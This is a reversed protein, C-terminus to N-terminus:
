STVPQVLTGITAGSTVYHADYDPADAADSNNCDVDVSQKTLMSAMAVTSMSTTMTCMAMVKVGIAGLARMAWKM